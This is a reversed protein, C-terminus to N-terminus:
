STYDPSGSVLNFMEHIEKASTHAAENNEVFVFGYKAAANLLENAANHNSASIDIVPIQVTEKAM